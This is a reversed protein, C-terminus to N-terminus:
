FVLYCAKSGDMEVINVTRGRRETSGLWGELWGRLCVVGFVAEAQAQVAGAGYVQGGVLEDLDAGGL